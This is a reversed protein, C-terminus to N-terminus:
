GEQRLGFSLGQCPGSGEASGQVPWAILLGAV